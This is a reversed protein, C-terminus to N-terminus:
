QGPGSEGSGPTSQSPDSTTEALVNSDTDTGAPLPASTGEIDTQVAEDVVGDASQQRKQIAQKQREITQEAETYARKITMLLAKKVLDEMSIDRDEKKEKHANVAELFELVYDGESRNLRVRISLYSM